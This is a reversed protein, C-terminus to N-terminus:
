RPGLRSRARRLAQSSTLFQRHAYGLRRGCRHAFRAHSRCVARRAGGAPSRALLGSRLAHPWLCRAGSGARRRAQVRCHTQKAHSRRRPSLGGPLQGGPCRSPKALFRSNLSDLLKLRSAVIEHTITSPPQLDEVALSSDDAAGREGVILPAFGAGLFGASYATPSLARNPAISVFNPLEADPRGLEKSVLSGFTPYQIPGGPVYGTRVYSTARGHDGEKATMSRVVAMRKTWKALQPLHESIKVGEAATATDKFLGGNKSGPKLDFTDMQSPGGNMWLLICSRRRNKDDAAACALREFWGSASVGVAGTLSLRLLDRRSFPGALRNLYDIGSM